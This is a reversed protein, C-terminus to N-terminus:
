KKKKYMKIKTMIQYYVTSSCVIFPRLTPHFMDCDPLPTYNPDVELRKKLCKSRSGRYYDKPIYDPCTKACRDYPHLTDMFICKDPYRYCCSQCYIHLIEKRSGVTVLTREDADNQRKWFGSWTEKGWPQITTM